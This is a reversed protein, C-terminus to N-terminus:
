LADRLDKAEALLQVLGERDGADILTRARELRGALDALAPTLAERNELLIEAWMPPAPVVQWGVSWPLSNLERSM